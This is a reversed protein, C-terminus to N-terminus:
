ILSKPPEGGPPPTTTDPTGTGADKDKKRSTRRQAAAAEEAEKKARSKAAGSAFGAVIGKLFSIAILAGALTLLFMGPAIARFQGMIHDLSLMSLGEYKKTWAEWAPSSAANSIGVIGVWLCLMCNILFPWMIMRRYLINFVAVFIGYIAIGLIIPGRLTTMGNTFASQVDPHRGSWSVLCGIVTLISTFLFLFHEKHVTKWALAVHGGCEPCRTSMPHIPAGCYACPRMEAGPDLRDKDPGEVVVVVEPGDSM